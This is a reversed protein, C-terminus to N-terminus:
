TKICYHMAMYPPMNEHAQSAGVATSNNSQNFFNQRTTLNNSPPSGATAIANAAYVTNSPYGTGWNFTHGPLSHAHAPSGSQAATLTVTKQGGTEGRTDFETQATDIGVPMRGKLNPVNFTTSGNGAGFTTGIAAFLDAYTTRSVASGDCLLWGPPASALATPMIMGAPILAALDAQSVSEANKELFALRQEQQEQKVALKSEYDFGTPDGITAATLVGDESISIIAETVITQLEQGGVVVTVIDGLFWDKGYVMTTDDAPTVALSTITRGNTQVGETGEQVLENDDDTDRRDKFVEVRRGWLEEAAAALADTVQIIRREVGQGQGAVVFRTGGPAGLGYEVKDLLDNDIDMRIEGSRDQPEYVVFQIENGVQVMDFGVGGASAVDSLLQGLQPFRARGTVVAGLGGAYTGLAFPVLAQRESPASSGINADVYGRLVDEALGTRVDHSASQTEVDPNSPEPFALSDALYINDDAGTYQWTGMPDDTDQVHIASIMPGSFRFGNPGTVTIGRGPKALEDGMSFGVPLSMTWAGVNCFRKILKLDTIYELDVQGLRGLALSRVEVTIDEPRM